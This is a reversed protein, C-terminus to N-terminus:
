QCALLLAAEAEALRELVILAKGLLLHLHPIGKTPIQSAEADILVTVRNCALAVDGRALALEAHAVAVMRASMATAADPVPHRALLEDARSFAKQAACVAILTGATNHLWYRSAIEQALTYASEAYERAAPLDALDFSLWALGFIAACQWQQHGIERAIALSEQLMELARGLYGHSGLCCGLSFLAFAEASRKGSQRALALSEEACAISEARTLLATHTDSQYIGSFISMVALSSALNYRDDMTRFRKIAEQFHGIAQPLDGGIFYALGLFDHTEAIAQSLDLEQVIRLADLHCQQAEHAEERNIHWNGIRNLSRALLVRDGLERAIQLARQYYEGTREYDRGAWLMGLDILAEWEHAQAHQDRAAQIAAEYDSRALDFIGLIEYAQGRQRVLGFPLPQGLREAAQLAHSFQDVAAQPAFLKLAREGVLRAYEITKPWDGAEFFHYALDACHAELTAAHRSEIDQAIARHIAQRERALLEGSVAQQTLAHRFEFQDATVETVLQAAIMEKIVAVLRAEDHGTLSQLLSFDFRRGAVAAILIARRAEYSLQELRRRVTDRVTRPMKIDQLSLHAWHGDNITIAGSSVLVNLIEEVFFPNGETLAFLAYLVDAHIARQLDFIARVMTAVETTSLPRLAIEQRQRERDLEALLHSLQPPIEDSRYTGLLIIPLAVIHRALFGLCELSIDDCWHMDEIIVVLPQQNSLYGLLALIAQFIRRKEQQPDSLQLPTIGPMWAVIDPLVNVLVEANGQFLDAVEARPRTALTSRLLDIWPAYPFARDPGFCNGQITLLGETTASSRIESVFRSKGVGADGSVLLAQGHGRRAPELCHQWSALAAERGILIPCLVPASPVAM